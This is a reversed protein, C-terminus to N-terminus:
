NYKGRQYIHCIIGCELKVTKCGLRRPDNPRVGLRRATSNAGAAKLTGALLGSRGGCGVSRRTKQAYAAASALRRAPHDKSGEARYGGYCRLHEFQNNRHTTSPLCRSTSITSTRYRMECLISGPWYRVTSINFTIKQQCTM